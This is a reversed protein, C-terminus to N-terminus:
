EDKGFFVFYFAVITKGENFKIRDEKLEYESWKRYMSNLEAIESSNDNDDKEEENTDTNLESSWLLDEKKWEYAHENGLLVHIKM